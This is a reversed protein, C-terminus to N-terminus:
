FCFGVRHGGPTRYPALRGAREIKGLTFLSVRLYKAAEKAKLLNVGKKDDMRIGGRQKFFLM